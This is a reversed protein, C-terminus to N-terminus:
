ENFVGVLKYLTITSGTRVEYFDDMTEPSAGHRALFTQYRENRELRTKEALADADAKEKAKREDEIQKLRDREAKEKAEQRGREEAELIEQKRKIEANQADIERQKKELEDQREKAIRENEIRIKENKDAVIKNVYGEFQTADMEIIEEDTIVNEFGELREKRVPLIALREKRLEHKKIGEIFTDLREEEPTILAVLEKEKEIVMKQFKVADARLTKGTDTIKTRMSQLTKKATKVEAVQELNDFDTISVNKSTEVIATIEAVTPNFKEIDM